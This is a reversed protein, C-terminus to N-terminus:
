AVKVRIKGTLLLDMMGQKIRELKEKEKREIELKEDITSLIGAIKQQELLKPSQILFNKLFTQTIIPHTTKSAFRDLRKFKLLYFLFPLHVKLKNYNESYIANDSIWVKGKGLHVEGSAGVRGIVLTFDNDVLCETTYGMVGNAGYIPVSGIESIKPREGNKLNLITRLKVVEWEKPIRGIETDKFEKHGIGKTLLEEMLGKKLRETKAIIENTKQIAKDITSLIEAIKQRENPPPLIIKFRLWERRPLNRLGTSTQQLSKLFDFYLYSNLYYYLFESNISPRIRIIFNSFFYTKEDKPHIFLAARGILHSSGSSAVVVIDGDQLSYQDVNKNLIRRTATNSLVVRGDHTIDTSRIVPYSKEGPIPNDGWIGNQCLKILNRLEVIEWDKPIRGIETDKFNTEKYFRM